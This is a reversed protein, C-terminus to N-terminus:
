NFFKALQEKKEEMESKSINGLEQTMRDPKDLVSKIVEKFHKALSSVFAGKIRRNDHLFTINIHNKQERVYLTIDQKHISKDLHLQQVSLGEVCLDYDEMFNITNLVVKFIPNENERRPIQLGSVITEFPIYSYTYAELTTDKIQSLLSLFSINKTLDCRLAITNLFNGVVVSDEERIRNSIPSGICIDKDGTFRHLALSYIGLMFMFLSVNEQKCLKTIKNHQKTNIEYQIPILEEKEDIKVKPLNLTNLKNLKINWYEHCEKLKQEKFSNRQWIAYDSYQHTKPPLTLGKGLFRHEYLQIFENILIPTSLADSAIHHVTFILVYQQEGWEILHVRIMHDKKLDFPINIIDKLDTDTPFGHTRQFTINPKKGLIKKQFVKNNSEYYTTALIENREVLANLAHNLATKDVIGKLKFVASIHHDVTGKLQDIFWISEQAFSLPIKNPRDQDKPLHHGDEPMKDMGEIKKALECVTQHAFFDPISLSVQFDKKISSIVRIATLSHGGLEFFNDHVGVREAGLLSRWIGVLREETENRPATHVEGLERLHGLFMERLRAVDTKGNSNVPFAEKVLYIGPLMYTPLHAKCFVSAEEASIGSRSKVFACLLSKPEEYLVHVDEVSPHSRLHNEIEGLEIRIGRLKIQDDKRGRFEYVGDSRRVALDGTKYMRDGEKLMPHGVFCSDTMEQDGYYGLSSYATKIYLEGVVGDDVIELNSNFIIAKAGSIPVGIPISGKVDKEQDIKYAFKVMTTETAGYLNVLQASQYFRDCWNAIDEGYLREGSLLVYRLDSLPVREGESESILERFFTPVCHILNIKQGQLWSPVLSTQVVGGERPPICLTGGSCLAVFVDRLFADFGVGTFQGVRIGEEVELYRLEWDIFHNLGRYVGLVGKPAGTSGSTFYLYCPDNPRLDISPSTASRNPTLARKYEEWDLAQGGFPSLDYSSVRPLITLRSRISTYRSVTGADLILWGPRYRNLLYIIRADPYNASIPVYVKGSRFIGLLSEVYAIPSSVLVFCLESRNESCTDLFSSLSLTADYLSRYSISLSNSELALKDPTRAVWNDFLSLVNTYPYDASQERM